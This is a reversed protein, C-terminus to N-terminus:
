RRSGGTRTSRSFFPLLGDDLCLSGLLLRTKDSYLIGQRKELPPSHPANHFLSDKEAPGKHTQGARTDPAAASAPVLSADPLLLPPAHSSSLWYSKSGPLPSPSSTHATQLSAAVTLLAGGERGGERGEKKHTQRTLGSLCACAFCWSTQLSTAITLFLLSPPSPPLSPCLSPFFSPPPSPHIKHM